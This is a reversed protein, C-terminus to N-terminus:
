DIHNYVVSMNSKHRKEIMPPKTGKHKSKPAIVEDNDSEDDDNRSSATASNDIRAEPEIPIGFVNVNPDVIDGIKEFPELNKM